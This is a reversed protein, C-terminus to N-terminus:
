FRGDVVFSGPGFGVRVHQAQVQAASTPEDPGSAAFIITLVGAALAAGGLIDTTLALTDTKSRANDIDSSTTPYKELASDYDSKAGSALIGTITAGTAFAGTAVLSAWFGAGMGPEATGSDTPTSSTSATPAVPPPASPHPSEEPVRVQLTVELTDGGAVEIYKITPLGAGKSASIKRRGASLLIPGELPTTGVISDDVSIEAGIVNAKISVHAVRARLKSLEKEVDAKRDASIESGGQKLYAEFAKMAGAYDQLEFYTQGLNFQIRYNPAVENARRFEILAARFNGERFFDVGRTFHDRAEAVADDGAVAEGHVLVPAACFLASALLIPHCRRSLKM